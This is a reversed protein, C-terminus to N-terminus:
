EEPPIHIVTAVPRPWNSLVPNGYWATTPFCKEWIAQIRDIKTVPPQLDPNLKCAEKYNVAAEFEESQLRLILKEYESLRPMFIREAIMSQLRSLENGEVPVPEESSIFLSHM